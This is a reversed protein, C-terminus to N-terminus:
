RAVGTHLVCASGSLAISVGSARIHSLLAALAAPADALATAAPSPGVPARGLRRRVRRILKPTLDALASGLVMAAGYPMAVGLARCTHPFARLTAGLYDPHHSVCLAMLLPLNFEAVLDERGVERLAALASDAWVTQVSYFRPVVDSWHYDQKGKLLPADELRGKHKRASSSGAGSWASTGGMILPYDVSCLRTTFNAVALAGYVDPSLGKFYAGTRARVEELCRRKVFGHYVRPLGTEYYRQAARRVCRRMECEADHYTLGGCFPRVYLNGAFPMLRPHVAVDPWYYDALPRNWVADVGEASAWELVAVAEPNIGDDDGLFCVYEGTAHCLAADFDDAMAGSAPTHHYVLRSDGSWSELQSGLGDDDSTDYIVLEVRASPM